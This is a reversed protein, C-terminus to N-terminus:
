FAMPATYDGKKRLNLYYELLMKNSGAKLLSANVIRLVDGRSLKVPPGAVTQIPNAKLKRLTEIALFVPVALFMRVGRYRGPFQLTYRMADDLHGITLEILKHVLGGIRGSDTELHLSNGTLNYESIIDGPLYYIGRGRDNPMDKIVNVKQLGLGFSIDLAKLRSALEDDFDYNEIFLETLMKGVTGAVYYCYKDWDECDSLTSIKDATGSPLSSYHAMGRAMESAWRFISHRQEPRLDNLYKLLNEIEGLLRHDHDRKIDAQIGSLGSTLKAIDNRGLEVSGDLLASLDMLRQRKEERVIYPSDEITDAVRCLLYANYVAHRLGPPLFKITLAFTRSVRPIYEQVFAQAERASNPM